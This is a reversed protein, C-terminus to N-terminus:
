VSPTGRSGSASDVFRERPAVVNGLTWQERLIYVIITFIFREDFVSEGFLILGEAVSSFCSRPAANHREAIFFVYCTTRSKNLRCSDSGMGPLSLRAGPVFADWSARKNELTYQFCLLWKTGPIWRRGFPTPVLPLPSDLVDM